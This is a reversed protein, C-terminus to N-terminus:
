RRNSKEITPIPGPNNNQKFFLIGTFFLHTIMKNRKDQKAVKIDYELCAYIVTNIANIIEANRYEFLIILVNRLKNIKPTTSKAKKRTREIKASLIDINLAILLTANYLKLM